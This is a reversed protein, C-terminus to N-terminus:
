YPKWHVDIGLAEGYLSVYGEETFCRVISRLYAYKKVSKHFAHTVIFGRFETFGLHSCFIVLKELGAPLLAFYKFEESESVYAQYVKQVHSVKNCFINYYKKMYTVRIKTLFMGARHIENKKLGM